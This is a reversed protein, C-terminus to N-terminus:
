RRVMHVEIQAIDTNHTSFEVRGQQAGPVRVLEHRGAGHPSDVVRDGKGPTVTRGTRLPALPSSWQRGPWRSLSGEDPLWRQGTVSGRAVIPPASAWTGSSTRQDNRM